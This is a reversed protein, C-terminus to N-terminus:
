CICIRNNQFPVFHHLNPEAPAPDTSGFAVINILLKSNYQVTSKNWKQVTQFPLAVLSISPHEKWAM